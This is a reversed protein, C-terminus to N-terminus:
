QGPSVEEVMTITTDYHYRVPVPKSSFTTVQFANAIVKFPKGARGGNPEPRATSDTLKLSVTLDAM